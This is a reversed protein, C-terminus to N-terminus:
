NPKEASPRPTEDLWKRAEAANASDFYRSTATTFPKFFEVMAKQWKADGVIALREIDAYHKVDFRIEEWMADAEWGHFGTLDMLMRLKGNQALLREFEAECPAYDSKALTGKAHVFVTRGGNQESFNIPM